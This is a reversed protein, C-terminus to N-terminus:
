ADTIIYFTTANPTGANYEAQTLSVVNLVADSGTIEGSVISNITNVEAGTAIGGLKTKETDTYANTNTQAEYLTKIESGTQDATAGAEVGALKTKEADTYANTNTNGEYLVKIESPTQDATAGAEVGDIKAKDSGLMLGSNGGSVVEPLIVDAGSSSQLLRTAAVYSLDTSGSGGTQWGTGGLLATLLDSIEQATLDATAGAEVGALKTKEADTYANTDANSEYQTKIDSSTLVQGTYQSLFVDLIQKLTLTHTVEDNENIVIIRDGEDYTGSPYNKIRPM